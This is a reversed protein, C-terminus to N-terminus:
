GELDSQEPKGSFLGAICEPFLLDNYGPLSPIFNYGLPGKLNGGAVPEGVVVM